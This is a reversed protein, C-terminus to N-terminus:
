KGICFRSFIAELLEDQSGRGVIADMQEAALRLHEAILETSRGSVLTTKAEYLSALARDVAIKHRRTTLWVGHAEGATSGRLEQTVAAQLTALGDGTLASGDLVRHPFLAALAEATLQTPLDSKNCWVLLRETGLQAALERVDDTLPASGDLVLLRLEAQELLARTRLMGLAEIQEHGGATDAAPLPRLGATDTLRIPIGEWVVPEELSDRTTGATAHVLARTEGLLANLLSSKGANTPGVLVVRAGERYLRGEHYTAALQELEGALATVREAIQQQRLLELDEEPFDLSAEVQARLELVNSAIKGLVRSLRGSLQEQAHRVSEASSAAIVDAVAEAQTLDIRGNLYARRTFEGPEALRAGAAVCSAVIQELILPNGHAHIEVVDEGTYSRPSQFWLALVQDLLSGTSFDIVNGMYIRHSEFNDVTQGSNMWLTRLIQLAGEGSLRIIGIAGVGSPTAVAVITDKLYPIATHHM